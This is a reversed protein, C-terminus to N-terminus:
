RRGRLWFLVGALLGALLIGGLVALWNVAADSLKLVRKTPGDYEVLVASVNDRGGNALAAAILKAVADELSSTASLIASIEGDRLEGSLGDSCLLVWDGNHMPLEHRDPEPEGAGLVRTVQNRQSHMRVQTESLHEQRRLQEVVSHDETLAQLRRERWLYARSDGAWVVEGMGRAIKFAVITSAMGHNKEDKQAAEVVAAHARKVADRLKLSGSWQLVTDKVIASAVQGSAHGGLGDAVLAISRAADWGICDQNEGGRNGPDTLGAVATM